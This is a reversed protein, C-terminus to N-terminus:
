RGCLRGAGIADAALGQDEIDTPVSRGAIAAAAFRALAPAMQIGYGGQGVLWFLAPERPDFGAVPARDAAFSRLGAWRGTIRGVRLRSDRELRDIACAIDIEDPQADTPPSPTEDAPSLLIRGADPKFYVDEGLSIAMPSDPGLCGAGPGGAPEFVLATRRRPEIGLPDLQLQRAIPDAWAGACIALRAARIVLPRGGGTAALRWGGRDRGVDLRALDVGTMLRAGAARAQRWYGSLLAHVDIDEASADLLGGTILRVEGEERGVGGAETRLFPAQRALAAADLRTPRPLPVGAAATLKLEADIEDAFAALASAEAADGYFLAGRPALLPHDSFGAPPHRFFGLSARTLARVPANGYLPAYLAASRGTTHYGPQSEREIAAVALGLRALEFALSAGAMGAGVILVDADVSDAFPAPPM